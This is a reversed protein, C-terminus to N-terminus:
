RRRPWVRGANDIAIAIPIADPFQERDFPLRIDSGVDLTSTLSGMWADPTVLEDSTPNM